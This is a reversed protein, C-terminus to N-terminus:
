GLGACSDAGTGRGDGVHYSHGNSLGDGRGRVALSGAAGARVKSLVLVVGAM